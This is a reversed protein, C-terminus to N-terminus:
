KWTKLKADSWEGYTSNPLVIFKSGFKDELREVAKNRKKTSADNFVAAFDHLDDGTLLAIEYDETIESRREKKSEGKLMVSEKTVQPLGLKKMNKITPTENEAVRNSVYFIKVGKSDAYKLFGKAGPILKASAADVWADWKDGWNTYDFGEKVGMALYPTNDLVTEDLDTVVAPSKSSENNELYNNLQQKALNFAQEQLARVEASKQQYLVGMKYQKAVNNNKKNQTGTTKSSSSETDTQNPNSSETSSSCGGTVLLAFTILTIIWVFRRNKM